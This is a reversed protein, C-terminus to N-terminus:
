QSPPPNSRLWNLAQERSTLVGEEQLERIERLRAGVEPGEGIGLAEMVERGGLLAPLPARSSAEHLSLLERLTRRLRRWRRAADPAGSAMADCAAHLVLLPLDGGMERVLRRLGRRPDGAEALHHPRLHAAVLRSVRRRLSRPFRLRDLIEEARRSGATEHGHFTPRGDPGAALTEPKSVDHLLLAWVLVRRAAPERAARAGPLRGARVARDLTNLTHTWVDPRDRGAVCRRLPVLEPLVSGLLGLTVLTRLGRGPDVGQLLLDLEDRVREASARRLSRASAAIEVAALRDLRLCPFQSLFRAARLARVPDELVVGSRPLRLRRRRLDALGELPDEIRATDLRFAVANITAERRRLDELLPRRGIDVLDVERGPLAFRWTTVGRKRFRFGRTAWRRRLAAVLAGARPGACFDLDASPRGLAADRVAGGVLWVPVGTERGADRVSRLVPDRGSRRRLRAEV